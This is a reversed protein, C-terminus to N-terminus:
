RTSGTCRYQLRVLAIEEHGDHGEVLRFVFGPSSGPFYAEDFTQSGVFADARVDILDVTTFYNSAIDVPSVAPQEGERRDSWGPPTWRSEPGSKPRVSFVWLLSDVALGVVRTHLRIQGDQTPSPVWPHFWSPRSRLSRLFRGERSWVQIEYAYPTAAFVQGAGEAAVKFMVEPNTGLPLVASTDGFSALLEGKPGIRHLPLGITSASAGQGAVLIAGSPEVGVLRNVNVPLPVSRAFRLGPGFVSWRRLEADLVHLSDGPGQRAALPRMFEGPGRGWRGLRRLYQGRDNYVEVSGPDGAPAVVYSGNRLRTVSPLLVPGWPRASVGALHPLPAVDISCTTWPHTTTRGSAASPAQQTLGSESGGLLVLSLALVHVM